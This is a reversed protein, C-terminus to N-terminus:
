YILTLWRVLHLEITGNTLVAAFKQNLKVSNVTGVYAKDNFTEVTIICVSCYIHIHSGTVM